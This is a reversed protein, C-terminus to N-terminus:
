LAKALAGTSHSAKDLPEDSLRGRQPVVAEPEPAIKTVNCEPAPHGAEERIRRRDGAVTAGRFRM